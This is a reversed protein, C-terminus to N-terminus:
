GTLSFIEIIVLNPFLSFKSKVTIEIKGPIGLSRLILRSKENSEEIIEVLESGEIITFEAESNRFPIEWGLANIPVVKIKITSSADAFLNDPDKKIVEGYVNFIYMAFILAIVSLVLILSFFIKISRSM